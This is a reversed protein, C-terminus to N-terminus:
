RGEQACVCNQWKEGEGVQVLERGDRILARVPVHVQKATDHPNIKVTYTPPDAHSGAEFAWLLWSPWVFSHLHDPLLSDHSGRSRDKTKDSKTSVCTSLIILLNRNGYSLYHPCSWIFPIFLGYGDIFPCYVSVWGWHSPTNPLPPNPCLLACLGWRGPPGGWSWSTGAVVSQLALPLM